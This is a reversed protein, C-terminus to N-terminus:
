ERDSSRPKESGDPLDVGVNDILRTRGVWVAALLRVKGALRELPTFTTADVVEAYDLRVGEEALIRGAMGTRVREGDREGDLIEGRTAFLTRSLVLARRREVESLYSNRSSLALGDEERVTEGGVVEVPFDLDRVMTRIVALQQADKEGFVAVDPAVINFLKAVVTAVGRFHGPRSAGCLGESVGEVDIRSLFPEPYMVEASPLFLLDVGGDIGDLLTRDRDLDRPYRSLDENPGFQTPNVFISVVVRGCKSRAIRVLSLHGEHLFGMTPVLGVIEGERKWGAVIRRVEAIDGTEASV